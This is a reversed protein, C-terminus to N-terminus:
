LQVDAIGNVNAVNLKSRADCCLHLEIERRKRHEGRYNFLFWGNSFGFSSRRSWFNDGLLLFFAFSGGGRRSRLFFSRPFLAFSTIWKGNEIKSKAVTSSFGIRNTAPRPFGPGSYAAVRWLM